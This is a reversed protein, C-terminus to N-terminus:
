ILPTCTDPKIPALGVAMNGPAAHNPAVTDIYFTSEPSYTVTSGYTIAFGLSFPGPTATQLAPLIMTFDAPVPVPLEIWGSVANKDKTLAIDCDGTQAGGPVEVRSFEVTCDTGQRPRQLREIDDGPIAPLLGEVKPADSVTALSRRLAKMKERARQAASPEKEINSM